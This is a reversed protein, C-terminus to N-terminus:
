ANIFGEPIATINLPNVWAPRIRKDNNWSGSTASTLVQVEIDDVLEYDRLEYNYHRGPTTRIQKVVGYAMLQGRGAGVCYM